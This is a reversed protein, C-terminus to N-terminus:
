GAFRSDFPSSQRSARRRSLSGFRKKRKRSTSFCRSIRSSIKQTFTERRKKSKALVETLDEEDGHLTKQFVEHAKGLDHHHAASIIQERFVETGSLKLENLIRDAAQRTERSHAQLTQTYRLFKSPQSTLNDDDYSENVSDTEINKLEISVIEVEKKAKSNWGTAKEYGGNKADVLLIMGTRLNNADIKEWSGKLADFSWAIKNKLFDEAEYIPVSCLERRNPELKKRLENQARKSNKTENITAEANSRWYLSVDREEGGRVFRSVDLDFGSLDATTDFLDILDRQRLVHNPVFPETYALKELVKLSVSELSELIAKAKKLSEIEYPKLLESLKKGDIKEFEQKAFDKDKDKEKLPLDIWFIQAREHEGNRNCRGFRQVLPSFPALDTILLKSSIDVGAEVVQTAIIIRNADKEDFIKQWEQREAPRFRSHLLKIEPKETQNEFPLTELSKKAQKEADAYLKEVEAFVDQARAVTNVVVLTQTESEHNEKIFEALGKPLRCKIEAQRLSKVADLRKKLVESERDKESLSLTKLGDVKPAFDITKLWNKDLTASMWISKANGFVGFREQNERFAQLQTTTALGDGFLQLEDFIWLCDNNFLGFHFAWRFRNMAYGRNLARSLLLDQTGIIIQEREPFVDWDDSVDGGYLTHVSFRNKLDLNEVATEAVKRTQEVLTRMPLCYILRRGVSEPNTLRRWLWAGLIAATKGAGTPLNILEPLFNEALREQYDFPERNEFANRFFDQYTAPKITM